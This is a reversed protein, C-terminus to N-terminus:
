QSYFWQLTNGVSDRIQSTILRMTTKCNKRRLTLSKELKPANLCVTMATYAIRDGPGGLLEQLFKFLGLSVM